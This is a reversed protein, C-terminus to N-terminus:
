LTDYVADEENDWVRDFSPQSLSTAAEVLKLEEKQALFEVFDEVEEQRQIPLGKIKDILTETQM